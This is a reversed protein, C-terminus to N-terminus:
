RAPLHKLPDVPKGMRRVEFHLKVRDTESDGMEAIKQGKGVTQGEKVAIKSNHAYATLFTNNHKVIVLQGYGRLGTGSYVVKGDAAALVPDGKAGLIDVGKGGSEAFSTAVKGSSPWSWALDEDNRPQSAAAKADAKADAKAEVKADAKTDKADAKVEPRTEPRVANAETAKGLRALAEESYPERGAKPQSKITATNGDLPRQEIPQSSVVPKVVVVASEESEVPAVRLEQGVVIRNPDALNNWAAVDRYGQGHDLAIRYLTDGEKVIYHGKRAVREAAATVPKPAEAPTSTAATNKHSRDVVPAPETSACGAVILTALLAPILYNSNRNSKM